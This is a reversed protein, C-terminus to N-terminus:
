KAYTRLTRVTERKMYVSAYVLVVHPRAEPDPERSELASWRLVVLSAPTLPVAEARVLVYPGTHPGVRTKISEHLALVRAHKAVIYQVLRRALSAAIKECRAVLEVELSAGRASCKAATAEDLISRTMESLLREERDYITGDSLPAVVAVRTASSALRSLAPFGGAAAFERRDERENFRMCTACSIPSVNCLVDKEQWVPTESYDVFVEDAKLKAPKKSATPPPQQPPPPPM